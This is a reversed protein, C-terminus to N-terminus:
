GRVENSDSAQAALYKNENGVMLMLELMKGFQMEVGSTM